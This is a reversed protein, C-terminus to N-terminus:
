EQGTGSEPDKEVVTTSESVITASNSNSVKGDSEASGSELDEIKIHCFEADVKVTDPTISQYLVTGDQSSSSLEVNVGERESENTTALTANNRHVLTQDSGTAPLVMTEDTVINTDSLIDVPRRKIQEMSKSAADMSVTGTADEVEASDKADAQTADNETKIKKPPMISYDVDSNSVLVSPVTEIEENVTAVDCTESASNHKPIPIESKSADSDNKSEDLVMLELSDADLETTVQETAKAALKEAEAKARTKTLLVQQYIEGRHNNLGQLRRMNRNLNVNSCVACSNHDSCSILHYLLHKVKRCWPFPCVDYSATTGPCDRVHLM